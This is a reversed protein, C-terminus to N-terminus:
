KPNGSKALLFISYLYTGENTEWKIKKKRKREKNKQKNTKNKRAEQTLLRPM